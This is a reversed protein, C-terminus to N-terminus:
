RFDLNGFSLSAFILSSTKMPGWIRSSICSESNSSYKLLLSLFAQNDTFFTIRFKRPFWLDLCQLRYTFSINVCNWPRFTFMDNFICKRWECEPKKGSFNPDTLTSCPSLNWSLMNNLLNGAQCVMYIAGSNDLGYTKQITNTSDLFWISKLVTTGEICWVLFHNLSTNTAQQYLFKKKISVCNIKILIWM